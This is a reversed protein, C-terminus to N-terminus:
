RLLDIHNSSPNEKRKGERGKKEILPDKRGQGEGEKLFFAAPFIYPKVSV